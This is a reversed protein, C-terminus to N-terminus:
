LSGFSQTAQRFRRLMRCFDNADFWDKESLHALWDVTSAPSSFFRDIEISYDAGGDPVKTSLFFWGEGPKAVFWEAPEDILIECRPTRKFQTKM